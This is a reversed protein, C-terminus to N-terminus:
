TAHDLLGSKIIPFNIFVGHLLKCNKQYFIYVQPLINQQYILLLTLHCLKLSMLVHLRCPNACHLM